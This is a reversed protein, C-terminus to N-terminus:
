SRGKLLCLKATMPCHGSKKLCNAISWEAFSILIAGLSASIIFVGILRGVTKAANKEKTAQLFVAYGLALAILNLAVFM